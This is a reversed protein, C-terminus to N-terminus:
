YDSITVQNITHNGLANLAIGKNDLPYTGNPKIALTRDFYEIAGSSNGLESLL